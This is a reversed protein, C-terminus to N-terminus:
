TIDIMAPFLAHVHRIRELPGRAPGSGLRGADGRPIPRHVRRVLPAMLCSRTSDAGAPRAGPREWAPGCGRPPDAPTSAPRPTGDLMFTDFGSWRAARRAAGLGARM